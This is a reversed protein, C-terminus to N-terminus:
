SRARLLFAVPLSLGGGALGGGGVLVSGAVSRQLACADPARPGDRSCPAPQDDELAAFGRPLDVWAARSASAIPATSVRSGPPVAVPSRM